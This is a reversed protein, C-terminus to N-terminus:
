EDLIGRCPVGRWRDERGLSIYGDDSYGSLVVGHTSESDSVCTRGYIFVGNGMIYGSDVEGSSPIFLAKTNDTKDTLLFGDVGSGNYNYVYENTTSELLTEFETESPMRWNGDWAAHVADDELDLMTKNDIYNYKIFEPNYTEDHWKYDEESFYKQGSEEGIQEATYGQTDGWQFYLGTDYITEAGVNMTAWKIGGIEVYDHAPVAEPANVLKTCGNFPRGQITVNAPINVSELNICDQFANNELTIGDPFSISTLKTQNAFAGSNIITIDKDFTLIHTAM